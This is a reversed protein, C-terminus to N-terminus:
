EGVKWSTVSKINLTYPQMAQIAAAMANDFNISDGYNARVEDKLLFVLSNTGNNLRFWLVNGYNESEIVAFDLGADPM